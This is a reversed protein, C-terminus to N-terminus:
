RGFSWHSCCKQMHTRVLKLLLLLVRKTSEALVGSSSPPFRKRQKQLHCEAKNAPRLGGARLAGEAFPGWLEKRAFSQTKAGRTKKKLTERFSLGALVFCFLSVRASSPVTEKAKPCLVRSQKSPPSSWCAFSRARIPALAGKACLISDQGM